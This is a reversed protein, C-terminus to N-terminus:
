LSYWKLLLKREPKVTLNKQMGYFLVGLLSQQRAIEYLSEWDEPSIDKPREDSAGISYRLLQFFLDLVSKKL